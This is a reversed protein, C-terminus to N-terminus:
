FTSFSMAINFWFSFSLNLKEAYSNNFMKIWITIVLSYFSNAESQFNRDFQGGWDPTFQGREGILSVVGENKM